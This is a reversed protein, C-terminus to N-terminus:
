VISITTATLSASALLMGNIWEAAEWRREGQFMAKVLWLEGFGTLAATSAAPRKGRQEYAEADSSRVRINERITEYRTSQARVRRLM